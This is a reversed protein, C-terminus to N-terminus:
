GLQRGHDATVSMTTSDPEARLILKIRHREPPILNRHACLLVGDVGFLERRYDILPAGVAIGLLSATRSGAVTAGIDESTRVIRQGASELLEVITFSAFQVDTFGEALWAPLKATTLWLARRGQLRLRSIRIQDVLGASGAIRQRSLVRMVSGAVVQRTSHLRDDLTLSAGRRQDIVRTGIGRQPEVWGQERLRRLAQRVTGRAVGFRRM